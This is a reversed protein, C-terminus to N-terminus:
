SEQPESQTRFLVRYRDTKRLVLTEQATEDHQEGTAVVQYRIRFRYVVVAVDGFLEIQHEMEELSHIRAHMDYAAYSAVVAARGFVRRQTGRAMVVAQEDFFDSLEHASGSIWARNSERVLNWLEAEAENPPVGPRM